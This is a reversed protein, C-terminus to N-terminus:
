ANADTDPRHTSCRRRAVKEHGPAMEADHHGPDCHEGARHASETEDTARPQDICQACAREPYQDGYRKRIGDTVERDSLAQPQKSSYKVRDRKRVDNRRAIVAFCSTAERGQSNQETNHAIECRLHQRHAVTNCLM